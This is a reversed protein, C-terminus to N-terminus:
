FWGRNEKESIGKGLEVNQNSIQTELETQLKERRESLGAIEEKIVKVQDQYAKLTDQTKRKFEETDIDKIIKETSTDYSM